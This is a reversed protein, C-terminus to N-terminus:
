SAEQQRRDVHPVITGEDRRFSVRYRAVAAPVSTTVQFPSEDGPALTRFDLPARVSALQQGSGDFFAVVAALRDITAGAPPNRVVGSITLADGARTQQLSVLELPASEQGAAASSSPPAPMGTAAARPEAGPALLRGVSWLALILVIAVAVVSLALVGRSRGLSTSTKPDAQAFLRDVAFTDTDIPDDAALSTFVAPARAPLPATAPLPDAALSAALGEELVAVRADAREREQQLVRWTVIAMGIALALSMLTVVVLTTEM